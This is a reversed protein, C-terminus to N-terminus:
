IKKVHSIWKGGKKLFKKEKNLIENKHNWSCLILVNPYNRRFYDISVIPIHTGPTFKGIKEKTNDAIYDLHNNNIGCFNLATTSKASAAYGAIKFGSKKIRIIQNRFKKRSLYCDKKFKLCSEIKNLKKRNEKKLIDLVNKKVKFAGRRAITYRMSGGHTKQPIVNILDFGNSNFISKVSHASFMYIHADYIQDYSVKEFMSGLYPEEFVFIGDKKLLYDISKIVDNLDPIHCIVNAACILDTSKFYNNLKSVEKYCFFKNLVKLKRKKAYTAVNKSPEFGLCNIKNKKFNNLLTGDNSGIEICKSKKNLKKQKNIWTFYGKFHDVMYKSKNTFFPYYNNFIKPSKPHDNVQFLFNKKNFGAELKYFFEKKFDKKKLFGNAMPMKGFSIFPKIKSKSVKCRM